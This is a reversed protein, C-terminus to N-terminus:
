RLVVKKTVVGKDTEITFTYTGRVLKATNIRHRAGDKVQSSFMVSGAANRVTVLKIKLNSKNEIFVESTAPNPYVVLLEEAIGIKAAEDSMTENKKDLKFSVPLTYYVSVAKGAQMGPKWDPMAHLVRLVEQDCDPHIGRVIVPDKIKGKDDIVFQAIVRGEVAAKRVAEPYRLNKALYGMIDVSPKPMQEVATFVKAAHEGTVADAETAKPVAPTEAPMRFSVPLTYYVNVPQGGQKGPVWRPMNSVVRMAEEGCGGGIDRQLVANTVNGEKDVVFQIVVRGQVQEKKATEPYRINGALYKGLDGSFQPMQDVSTFIREKEPSQPEQALGQVMGCCMMVAGLLMAKAPRSHKNLSFKM